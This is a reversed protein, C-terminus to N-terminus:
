QLLGMVNLLAKITANWNYLSATKLQREKVINTYKYDNFCTQIALFLNNVTQENHEVFAAASSHCFEFNGGSDTCIVPLGCAMAELIPLGFGEHRSTHLFVGSENYLRHLHLDNPNQVHIHPMFDIKPSDEVSYTVVSVRSDNGAVKRLVDLTIDFGKIHNPGGTHTRCPTLIRFPDRANKTWETKFFMKNDYGISINTSQCKYKEFLLDQIYSSETIYIIGPLNYTVGREKGEYIVEDEDQVLYYVNRDKIVNTQIVWEVTKPVTCVFIANEKEVKDHNEIADCIDKENSFKVNPVPYTFWDFDGGTMWVVSDHGVMRLRTVHEAIVRQGGCLGAETLLYIIRM